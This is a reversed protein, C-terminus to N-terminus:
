TFICLPEEGRWLDTADVDVCHPQLAQLNSRLFVRGCSVFCMFTSQSLIPNLWSIPIPNLLFYIVQLLVSVGEDFHEAVAMRLIILLVCM